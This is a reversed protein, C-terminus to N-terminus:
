LLYTPVKGGVGEKSIVSSSRVVMVVRMFWSVWTGFVVETGVM